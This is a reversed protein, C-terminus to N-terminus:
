EKYMLINASRDNVEDRRFINDMEGYYTSPTYIVYRRTLMSVGVQNLVSIDAYREPRRYSRKVCFM